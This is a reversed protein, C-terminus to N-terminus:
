AAKVMKAVLDHNMTDPYADYITLIRGLGLHGALSAAEHSIGEMMDGDSVVVFTNHSCVEEGFRAHQNEEAIALGVASAFGQGLPGTTVDVGETHNREPAWPNKIWANSVSALRDPGASLWDLVAHVSDHKLPGVL